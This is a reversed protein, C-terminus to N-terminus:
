GFSLRSVIRCVVPTAGHSAFREAPLRPGTAVTRFRSFTEERTIFGARGEIVLHEGGGAFRADMAPLEAFRQVPHGAFLDRGHLRVGLPGEQVFPDGERDVALFTRLLPDDRDVEQRPQDICGVPIQNLAPEPLPQLRQVAEERVDVPRRADEAISDHRGVQHAAARLVADLHLAELHRVTDIDREATGVDHTGVTTEHHQLVIQPYGGPDGVHQGVTPRQLRAQAVQEPTVVHAADLVVAPQQALGQGLKCRGADGVGADDQQRRPNVIRGEVLVHEQRLLHAHLEHLAAVQEDM